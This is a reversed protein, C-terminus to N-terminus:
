RYVKEKEALMPHDAVHIDVDYDDGSFLEAVFRKIAGEIAFRSDVSVAYLDVTITTEYGHATVVTATTLENSM